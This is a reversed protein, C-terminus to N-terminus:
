IRTVSIISSNAYRYKIDKFTFNYLEKSIKYGNFGYDLTRLM